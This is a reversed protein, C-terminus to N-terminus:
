SAQEDIATVVRIAEADLATLDYGTDWTPWPDTAQARRRRLAFALLAAGTAAIACAAAIPTTM